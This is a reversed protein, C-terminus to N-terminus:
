SNVAYRWLFGYATKLQGKCCMCVNGPRYNDKSVDSICEYRRVFVGNKTYCDVPIHKEVARRGALSKSISSSRQESPRKFSDPLHLYHLKSHESHTLVILNEPRNDGRNFNKHHVAAGEFWEGCIDPFAKAVIVHLAMKVGNRGGLSFYYYGSSYSGKLIKGNSKFRGFNSVEYKKDFGGVNRWLEEM